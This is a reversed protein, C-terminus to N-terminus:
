KKSGAYNSQVDDYLAACRGVRSNARDLASRERVLVSRLEDGVKVGAHPESKRCDDPLDPLDIGAAIKGQETAASKLRETSSCSILM